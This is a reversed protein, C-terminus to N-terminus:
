KEPFVESIFIKCESEFSSFINEINRVLHRMKDWKLEFSYAQRFVHRFDLYEQLTESLSASLLAPRHPQSATMLEILESHWYPGEPVRDDHEAAIRKFINEIGTYFAHLIAALAAIEDANPDKTRCKLLLGAHTELLQRLQKIEVDIRNKLDHSM